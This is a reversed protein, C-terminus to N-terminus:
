IIIHRVLLWLSVKSILPQTLAHIRVSSVGNADRYSLLNYVFNTLIAESVITNYGVSEKEFSFEDDSVLESTEEETNILKSIESSTKKFQSSLTSYYFGSGILLVTLLCFIKGFLIKM